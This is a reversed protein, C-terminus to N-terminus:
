LDVCLKQLAICCIVNNFHILVPFLVQFRFSHLPFVGVGWGLSLKFGQSRYAIYRECHKPNRLSSDEHVVIYLVTVHGTVFLYRCPCVKLLCL